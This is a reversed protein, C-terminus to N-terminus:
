RFPFNSTARLVRWSCSSRPIRSSKLGCGRDSIAQNCCFRGDELGGLLSCTM